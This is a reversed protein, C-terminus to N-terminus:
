RGSRTSAARPPMTRVDSFRRIRATSAPTARDRGGRRSGHDGRHHWGSVHARRSQDGEDRAAHRARRDHGHRPERHRRACRTGSAAAAPLPLPPDGRRRGRDRRGSAADASVRRASRGDAARIAVRRHRRHSHQSGAPESRPQRSLRAVFRPSCRDFHLGHRASCGPDRRRPRGARSLLHVAIRRRRRSERGRHAAAGTALARDRGRGSGRDSLRAASVPLGRGASELTARGRACLLLLQRAAGQGRRPQRHRFRLVGRERGRSVARRGGRRERLLHRRGQLHRFAAPIDAPRRPEHRASGCPVQTIESLNRALAQRVPDAALAQSWARALESTLEDAATSTPSRFDALIRAITEPTDTAVDVREVAWLLVYTQTAGDAGM